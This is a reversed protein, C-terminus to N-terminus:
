CTKKDIYIYSFKNWFLLYVYQKTAIVTNQSSPPATKHTLVQYEYGWGWGQSTLAFICWFKRWIKMKLLFKWSTKRSSVSKKSSILRGLTMMELNTCEQSRLTSGTMLLHQSLKSRLSHWWFTWMRVLWLAWIQALWTLFCPCFHMRLIKWARSLDLMGAMWSQSCTLSLVWLSWTHFDM